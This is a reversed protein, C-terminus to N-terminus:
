KMREGYYGGELDLDRMRQIRRKILAQEIGHRTLLSVVGFAMFMGAIESILLLLMGIVFCLLLEVPMVYRGKRFFSINLLLSRGAFRSQIVAGMSIRRYTIVRQVIVAIVFAALWVAMVPSAAAFVVLLLLSFAGAVGIGEVGFGTRTFVTICTAHVNCLFYLMGVPDSKRQPGVQEPPMGFFEIPGLFSCGFMMLLLQM